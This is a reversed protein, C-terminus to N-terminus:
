SASEGPAATVAVQIATPEKYLPPPPPGGPNSPRGRPLLLRGQLTVPDYKAGIGKLNGDPSHCTACRGAGKFYAEGAQKNGVLIDLIKYLRRNSAFYIASHLFAALDSVQAPSLDFRPM